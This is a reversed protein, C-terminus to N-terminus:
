DGEEYELNKELNEKTEDKTSALCPLFDYRNDRTTPIKKTQVAGDLASEHFDCLDMEEHKIEMKQHDTVQLLSRGDKSRHELKM